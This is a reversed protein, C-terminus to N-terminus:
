PRYTAPPRTSQASPSATTAATPATSSAGRPRWTCTLRTTPAPRLRAPHHLRDARPDPHWGRRGLPLIGSDLRARRHRLRLSRQSPLGPAASRGGPAALRLARRQPHAQGAGSELRYVMVKDLGLDVALAFRNGPDVTVFHAHPGEQRSPNVSHGEHQVFDSAPGLAGDEGIPLMALSGSAYNAALAYRGTRNVCVYCPGRGITSQRNLFRLTGTAPDVAFASVAGVTKGDAETMTNVSYLFRLSPHFALYTPNVLGPVTQVPALALTAPDLRFVYIGEGKRSVQSAAETYTGVYVYYDGAASSAM